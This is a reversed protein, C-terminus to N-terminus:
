QLWPLSIISSILLEGGKYVKRKSSKKMKEKKKDKSNEKKKLRKKDDIDTKERKSKMKEHGRRVDSAGSSHRSRKMKPGSDYSSASDNSSGSSNESSSDSQSSDDSSDRRSHHSHRRKRSEKELKDRCVSCSLSLVVCVIYTSGIYM